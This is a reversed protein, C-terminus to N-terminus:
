FLNAFRCLYRETRMSFLRSSLEGTNQNAYKLSLPIKQRRNASFGHTRRHPM